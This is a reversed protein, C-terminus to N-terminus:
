NLYFLPKAALRDIQKVMCLVKIKQCAHIFICMSIRRTNKYKLDNINLIMEM